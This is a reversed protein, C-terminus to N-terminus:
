LPATFRTNLEFTTSGGNYKWPAKCITVEYKTGMKNIYVTSGALLTESIMSKTFSVFVKKYGPSSYETTTTYKGTAIESGFRMSISSSNWTSGNISYNDPMDITYYKDSGSGSGVDLTSMTLTCTPVVPKPYISDLRITEGYSYGYENTAWTRFYYTSDVNFLYSPYIASFVNGDLKAIVQGNLMTPEASAQVCFGAYHIFTGKAKGPSIIEATVLVSGDEQILASTTKVVPFYDEVNKLPKRCSFSSILAAAFLLHGIVRKM